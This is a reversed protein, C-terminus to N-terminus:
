TNPSILHDRSGLRCPPGVPQASRGVADPYPPV